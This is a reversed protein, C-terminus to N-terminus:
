MPKKIFCNSSSPNGLNKTNWEIRAIPVSQGPVGLQLEGENDRFIFKQFRSMIQDRAISFDAYRQVGDIHAITHMVRLVACAWAQKRSQEPRRDSAALIINRVDSFSLLDDPPQIGKNWEKPILYREIFNWSEIIVSHIKRADVEEDPDYGYHKIFETADQWNKFKLKELDISSKGGILVDMAGWNFDWLKKIHLSEDFSDNEIENETM